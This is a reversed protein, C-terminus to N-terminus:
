LPKGSGKKKNLLKNQVTLYMIETCADLGLPYYSLLEKKNIM